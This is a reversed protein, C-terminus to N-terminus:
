KEWLKVKAFLTAIDVVLTVDLRTRSGVRLGIGIVLNERKLEFPMAHFFPDPGAENSDARFEFHSEIGDAEKNALLLIGNLQIGAIVAKLQIAAAVLHRPVLDTRAKDLRRRM